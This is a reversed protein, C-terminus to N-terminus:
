APPGRRGRHQHMQQMQQGLKARQEPTLVEAIDALSQTVKRSLAEASQLQEARVRELAARDVTPATLLQMAQQRAKMHQERLPAMEAATQKAITAAKQKQEATADVRSLMRDVMRDIRGNMAEPTMQGGHGHHGHHGGWGRGEGMGGGWGGGMPACASLVTLSGALGAILWWRRRGTSEHKSM